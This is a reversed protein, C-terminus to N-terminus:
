CVISHMNKKLLVNQVTELQSSPECGLIPILWKGGVGGETEGLIVEQETHGNDAAQQADRQSHDLEHEASHESAPGEDSITHVRVCACACRRIKSMLYM